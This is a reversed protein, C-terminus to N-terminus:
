LLNCCVKQYEKHGIPKLENSAFLEQQIEKEEVVEFFALTDNPFISANTHKQKTNEQKKSTNNVYWGKNYKRKTFYHNSVVKTSTGCSLMFCVITSALIIHTIKFM